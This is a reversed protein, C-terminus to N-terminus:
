TARCNWTSPSRVQSKAGLSIPGATRGFPNLRGNLYCFSMAKRKNSTKESAGDATYVEGVGDGRKRIKACGRILKVRVNGDDDFDLQIASNPELYITGLGPIKVKASVQNPTELTAGTLFTAGPSASSGNVTVPRGSTTLRAIYRQPTLVSAKSAGPGAFSTQVYVHTLSFALFVAIAKFTKLQGLNM